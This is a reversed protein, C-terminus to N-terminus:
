LWIPKLADSTARDDCNSRSYLKSVRKKKPSGNSSKHWSKDGLPWRLM